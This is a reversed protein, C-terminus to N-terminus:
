ALILTIDLGCRHLIRLLLPQLSYSKKYSFINVLWFFSFMNKELPYFHAGPLLNTLEKETILSMMPGIDRKTTIFYLFTILKRFTLNNHIDSENV